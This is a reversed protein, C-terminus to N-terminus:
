RAETTTTTPPPTMLPAAYPERKQAVILDALLGIALIIAAGVLLVADGESVHLRDVCFRWIIRGLAGALLVLSAPVFVRLPRFYMVIRVVTAGYKAADKIPHFKSTGIRKRYDIPVYKVPHGNCLFALTMSTVCSFGDPMCWLYRLMIDRDYVKM